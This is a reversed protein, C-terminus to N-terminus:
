TSTTSWPQRPRGIHILKVHHHSFNTHLCVEELEIIRARLESEVRESDTRTSDVSKEARALNARLDEARSEALQLSRKLADAAGDREAVVSRLDAIQDQLTSIEAEKSGIAATLREYANQWKGMESEVARLEHLVADLEGRVKVVENTKDVLQQRLLESEKKEAARLEDATTDDARSGPSKAPQAPQQHHTTTSNNGYSTDWATESQQSRAPTTFRAASISASKAQDLQSQRERARQRSEELRREIEVQEELLQNRPRSPTDLDARSLFRTSSTSAYRGSPTSTQGLRSASWQAYSTTSTM